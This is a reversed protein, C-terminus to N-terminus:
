CRIREGSIRTFDRANNVLHQGTIYRRGALTEGQSILEQLNM